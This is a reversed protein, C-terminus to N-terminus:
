HVGVVKVETPCLYQHCKAETGGSSLFAAVSATIACLSLTTNGACGDFTGESCM